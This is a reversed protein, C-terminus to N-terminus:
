KQTWSLLGRWIPEMGDETANDIYNKLQACGAGANTKELILEFKTASNEMLKVGSKTPAKNPKQGPMADFQAVSAQYSTGVLKAHIKAALTEFELIDGAAVMRVPRPTPYKPKFNNTGPVRLVRAADAPV